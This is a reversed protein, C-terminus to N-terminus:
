AISYCVCKQTGTYNQTANDLVLRKTIICNNMNLKHKRLSESVSKKKLRRQDNLQDFFIKKQGKYSSSTWQTSGSRAIIEEV